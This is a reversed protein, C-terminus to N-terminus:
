AKTSRSGAQAATRATFVAHFAEPLEKWSDDAPLKPYAQSNYTNWFLVNKDALIGRGADAMLGAFVKATYTLSVPLEAKDHFLQAAERAAETPIAYGDGLQDNRVKVGSQSSDLLPIASDRANLERNADRFLTQFVREPQMSDPTVQIAEVSAKIGALMLGLALGATSGATGCGLYITDPKSLSGATIQQALELGANVFGIAGLWSSGGFPIEYCYKTGLEDHLRDAVSRTQAYTHAIELRTGLLQHYRLTRCVLATGPEPTLIAICRLGLRQCNIATALAHNSGLGGFTIVNRCGNQKAAALLFELKRLKNGGYNPASIDDRKLWLKGIGVAEELGSSRHVPTPLDALQLFPLSQRLSPYRNFIAREASM